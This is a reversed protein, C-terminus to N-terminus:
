CRLDPTMTYVRVTDEDRVVMVIHGARSIADFSDAGSTTKLKVRGPKDRFRWHLGGQRTFEDVAPNARFIRVARSPVHVEVPDGKEDRGSTIVLDRSHGDTDLAFIEPESLMFGEPGQRARALVEDSKKGAGPASAAPEGPQLALASGATAVGAGVALATARKVVDRRSVETSM